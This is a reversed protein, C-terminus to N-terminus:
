TFLDAAFREVILAMPQGGTRVLYSRSLLGARTELLGSVESNDERRFDIIERFTELRSAKWLQGIPTDTNQLANQLDRPMRAPVLWSEAHLYKRTDGCLLIRRTIVPEEGSVQLVAPGGATLSQGLKRVRVKEGSFVELLQTVTGDTVLLAKQSTSLNRDDMVAVEAGRIDKM